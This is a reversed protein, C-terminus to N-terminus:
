SQLDQRPKLRLLQCSVHAPQHMANRTPQTM